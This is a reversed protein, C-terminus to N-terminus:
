RRLLLCQFQRCPRCWNLVVGDADVSQVNWTQGAPVVFDDAGDSSYAPFDSIISSLTATVSANNYQDYLVVQPARPHPLIALSPARAAGSASPNTVPAAAGGSTANLQALAFPILSVAVLLLVYCASRIVHATISYNNQKKM